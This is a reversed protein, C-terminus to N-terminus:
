RVQHLFRNFSFPTIDTDIIVERSAREISEVDLPSSWQLVYRFLFPSIDPSNYIRYQYIKSKAMKRAHFNTDVRKLSVVRIDKPLQSNLAQFFEEDSLNLAAKFHAVQGHAHVGSDTRGAGIVNIKKSCLKFLVNELLGQITKRDPQRQWGHYDTGDYSSVIKYNQM